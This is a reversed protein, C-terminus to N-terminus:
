NGYLHYVAYSRNDPDIEAPSNPYFRDVPAVVVEERLTGNHSIKTLTQFQIGAYPGTTVKGFTWYWVNGDEDSWKKMIKETGEGGTPTTDTYLIYNKYGSASNVTMQPRMNDNEWTKFLEENPKPVYTDQAIVSVSGLVLFCTAVLVFRVKM